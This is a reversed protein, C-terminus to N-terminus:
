CCSCLYAGGAEGKRTEEPHEEVYARQDNDGGMAEDIARARRQGELVSSELVEDVMQLIAEMETM